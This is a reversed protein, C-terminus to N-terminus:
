FSQMMQLADDVDVDFVLFAWVDLIKVVMKSDDVKFHLSQVMM